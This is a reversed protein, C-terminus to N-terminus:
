FYFLIISILEVHEDLYVFKTLPLSISYISILCLSIYNNFNNVKKKSEMSRWMEGLTRGYFQLDRGPNKERLKAGKEKSFIMYGSTPM